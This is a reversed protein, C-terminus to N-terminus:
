KYVHKKPKNMDDTYPYKGARIKEKRCFQFIPHLFPVGQPLAAFVATERNTPTGKSMVIDTRTFPTLLVRLAFPTKIM